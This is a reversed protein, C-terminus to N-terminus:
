LSLLYNGQLSPGRQYTSELLIPSYAGTLSSPDVYQIHIEVEHPIGEGPRFRFM